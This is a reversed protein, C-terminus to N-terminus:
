QGYSKYEKTLSKLLKIEESVLSLAFIGVFLGGFILLTFLKHNIALSVLTVAIVFYIALKLSSIIISTKLLKLPKMQAKLSLIGGEGQFTSNMSVESEGNSLEEYHAFFLQIDNTNLFSNSIAKNTEKHLSVLEYALYKDSYEKFRSNAEAENINFKPIEIDDIGLNTIDVKLNFATISYSASFIGRKFKFMFPLFTNFDREIQDFSKQLKIELIYKSIELAEEKEEETLVNFRFNRITLAQIKEYEKEFISVVEQPQKLNSSNRFTTKQSTQFSKVTNKISAMFEHIGLKHKAKDNLLKPMISTIREKMLDTLHYDGNAWESYKRKLYAFSRSGYEEIYFNSLKQRTELDATFFEQLLFQNYDLYETTFDIEKESFFFKPQYSRSYSRYKRYRWSM